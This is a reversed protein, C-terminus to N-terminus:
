CLRSLFYGYDNKGYLKAIKKLKNSSIWGNLFSTMEPSGILVGQRKQIAQIFMSAEILADHTGADFWTMGTHLSLFNLKKSILYNQILDTIELEGRKSPKLKKSFDVAYQDLFYLGTMVINSEPTIPKEVFKKIENNKDFYIVGYNQPNSVNCGFITTHRNHSAKILLEELGTGLFINDGLILASPHKDIFDQAIIFSEAIGNPNEQVLYTFHCGFRKGDGLLKKFNGIDDPTSIILIERIKASLLTCLPYYIMPKDFIPVLQKSMAITAPYLRTGKGGALIIGKRDM